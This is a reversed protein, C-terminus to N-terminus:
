IIHCARSVLEARWASHHSPRCGFDGPATSGAERPGASPRAPTGSAPTAPTLTPPRSDPTPPRSRGCSGVGQGGGWEHLPPRGPPPPRRPPPAPSVPRADRFGPRSRPSPARPSPAWRLPRPPCRLELLAAALGDVVSQRRRRRSTPSSARQDAARHHTSSRPRHSASAAVQEATAAPSGIAGGTSRRTERICDSRRRGRSQPGLLQDPHRGVEVSRSPASDATGGLGM